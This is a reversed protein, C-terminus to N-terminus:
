HELVDIGPLKKGELFELSAGGGTSVHSFKKELNAKEIASVSDGGGVVTVGRCESMAKAVALTGRDFPKQEFLGMPGNWFVTKAEKIMEAYIARTEPGIDFGASNKPMKDAPVVRKDSLVVDTPLVIKKNSNKLLSKALAIKDAEFKSKGVEYNLAKYFTFMMAGGILVADVKKLLSEIVGIKDSVKAGGMIAIFPHKPSKLLSSLMKVEKELLFGAYSPLFKAIAHVSAHARHSVAFADNVYVEALVALKQAFGADDAEEEPYFRLNELLLVDSEHLGRVAFEVDSGICDPEYHVPYKLLKSLRDAVPALRLDDAVKGDPRGLHSILVIRAKKKRLYEITPLVARIRKDDTIKGDKLPVNFDVRVIVIKGAVDAEKLLRM